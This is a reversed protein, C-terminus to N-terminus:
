LALPIVWIQESQIIFLWFLHTLFSTLSSEYSIHLFSPLYSSIFFPLFFYLFSTLFSFRFHLNRLFLLLLSIFLSCLNLFSSPLFLFPVNVSILFMHLLIDFLIHFCWFILICPHIYTCVSPNQIIYPIDGLLSLPQLPLLVSITQLVILIALAATSVM